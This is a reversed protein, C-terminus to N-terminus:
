SESIEGLFTTEVLRVHDCFRGPKLLIPLNPGNPSLLGFCPSPHSDIECYFEEEIGKRSCNM